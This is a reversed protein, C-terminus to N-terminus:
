TGPSRANLEGRLSRRTPQSTHCHSARRLWSDRTFNPANPDLKEFAAAVIEEQLKSVYEEIRQRMPTDLIAAMTHIKPFIHMM